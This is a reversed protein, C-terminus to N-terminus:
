PRIRRRRVKRGQDGGRQRVSQFPEANRYTRQAIRPKLPRCDHPSGKTRMSPLSGQVTGGPFHGFLRDIIQSVACTGRYSTRTLLQGGIPIVPEGALIDLGIRAILPPALSRVQGSLYM